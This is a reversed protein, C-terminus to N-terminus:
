MAKKTNEKTRYNSRNRLAKSSKTCCYNCGPPRATVSTKEPLLFWTATGWWRVEWVRIYIPRPTNQRGKSMPVGFFGLKM